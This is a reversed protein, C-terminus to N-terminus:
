PSTSGETGHEKSVRALALRVPAYEAFADLFTVDWRGAHDPCGLRYYLM